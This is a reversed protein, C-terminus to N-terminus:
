ATPAKIGTAAFAEQWSTFEGTIERPHIVVRMNETDSGTLWTETGMTREGVIWAIRTVMPAGEILGSTIGNNFPRDFTVIRM